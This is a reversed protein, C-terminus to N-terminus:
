QHYGSKVINRKYSLKKNNFMFLNKYVSIQMKILKWQIKKDEIVGVLKYKRKM